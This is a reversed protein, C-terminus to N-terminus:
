WAKDRATAPAPHALAWHTLLLALTMPDSSPSAFYVSDCWSHTHKDRLHMFTLCRAQVLYCLAWNHNTSPWTPLAKLGKSGISEDFCLHIACASGAVALMDSFLKCLLSERDRNQTINNSYNCCCANLPQLFSLQLQIQYDLLCFGFHENTCSCTCMSMLVVNGELVCRNKWSCLSLNFFCFAGASRNWCHKWQYTWRLSKSM